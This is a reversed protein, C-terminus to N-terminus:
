NNLADRIGIGIFHDSKASTRQEVTYGRGKVKEYFSKKGMPRGNNANEFWLKYESYLSTTKVINNKGIECCEKFFHGLTDEDAKYAETDRMVSTPIALGGKRWALAGDILWNLVGPLETADIRKDLTKDKKRQWSQGNDPNDVFSLPFILVRIRDWEALEQSPVHPLYNTLFFLTHTRRWEVERQFNHRGTISHGGSLQKMNATSLTRGEEIESSWAIRRGRLVMLAETAANATHNHKAKLLLEAEIIGALKDGLAQKIRELIFEKGNRGHKGYWINFYSESCEGTMAYGLSRQVFDVKGKDGDFIELLAKEFLPCDANPDFGVPAVTKIYQDPSPPVLEGTLLDVVGNAVGLLNTQADWENGTIGLLMTASALELVRKITASTKMAVARKYCVDRDFEAKEIAEERETKKQETEKREAEKQETAPNKRAGKELVRCVSSFHDAASAYLLAAVGSAVHAINAGPDAEWHLNNWFYWEKSVHDYVVHGRLVRTILNSDGVEVNKAYLVTEGPKDLSLAIELMDVKLQEISRRFIPPSYPSLAPADALASDERESPEGGGKPPPQPTPMDCIAATATREPKEGEISLFDGMLEQLQRQRAEDESIFNFPATQGISPTIGAQPAKVNGNFHPLIQTDLDNM